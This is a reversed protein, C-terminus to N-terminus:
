KLADGLYGVQAQDGGLREGVGGLYYVLNHRVGEPGVRWADQNLYGEM